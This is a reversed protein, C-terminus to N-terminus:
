ECLLIYKEFKLILLVNSGEWWGVGGGFDQNKITDYIKEIYLKKSISLKESEHNESERNESERNESEWIRSRLIAKVNESKM